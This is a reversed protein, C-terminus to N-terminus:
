ASTNSTNNIVLKRLSHGFDLLFEDILRQAIETPAGLKGHLRQKFLFM